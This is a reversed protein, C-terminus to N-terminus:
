SRVDVGYRTALDDVRLATGSMTLLDPDKLLALVVRGVGGASQSETMDLHETFQMIGETRVLGPYLAVSAVGTKRLQAGMAWALRDDAIKAVNYAVLVRGEGAAEDRAEDVDVSVTVIASGPRRILLPASLASAVYHARVGSAFMADWLALPQEWFPANWEEWGGANLGEYGAWANNVLLSLGGSEAGIRAAVARVAEDDRHDCVVGIGLGGAATVAEAADEVTGPLHSTSGGDRSSRSTLWVTWGAAGLAIAIGRGVGRSAGTVWAVNM